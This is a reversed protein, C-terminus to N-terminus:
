LSQLSDADSIIARLRGLFALMVSTSPQERRGNVRLVTVAERLGDIGPPAPPTMAAHLRMGTAHWAHWAHRAHRASSAGRGPAAQRGRGVVKICGHASSTGFRCLAHIRSSWAAVCAKKTDSAERQGADRFIRALRLLAEHLQPSSIEDRRSRQAPRSDKDMPGCTESAGIEEFGGFGRKAQARRVRLQWPVSVDKVM